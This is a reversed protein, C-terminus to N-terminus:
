KFRPNIWTVRKYTKDQKRSNCSRCMAQLNNIDHNPENHGPAIVHDITFDDGILEKSCIACLPDLVTKAYARAKKWALSQHWESM